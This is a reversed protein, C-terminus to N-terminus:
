LHIIDYNNLSWLRFKRHALCRGIQGLIGLRLDEFRRGLAEAMVAVALGGHGIDGAIARHRGAIEVAIELAFRIDAGGDADGPEGGQVLRRARGDGLGAQARPLLEFGIDQRDVAKGDFAQSVRRMDLFHHIEQALLPAVQHLAM